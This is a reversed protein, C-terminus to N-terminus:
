LDENNCVYIYKVVIVPLLHDENNIARELDTKTKKSKKHNFYKIKNKTLHSKIM